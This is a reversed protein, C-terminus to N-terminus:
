LLLISPELEWWELPAPLLIALSTIFNLARSQFHLPLAPWLTSFLIMRLFFSSIVEGFVPAVAEEHLVFIQFLFL